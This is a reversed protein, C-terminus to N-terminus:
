LRTGVVTEAAIVGQDLREHIHIIADLGLMAFVNSVLASPRAFQLNGGLADVDQQGAILIGIGASAIYQLDSLDIVIRIVGVAILSRIKRQLEVSTNGDLIGHLSVIHITRMRSEVMTLKMSPPTQMGDNAPMHRTRNAYSSM